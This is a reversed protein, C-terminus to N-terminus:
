TEKTIAAEYIKAMYEIKYREQNIQNPAADRIEEQPFYKKHPLSLAHNKGDLVLDCDYVTIADLALKANEFAVGKDYEEDWKLGRKFLATPVAAWNAEFHNPDNTTLIFKGQDFWDKYLQTGRVDHWDIEQPKDKYPEEFITYHGEIDFVKDVTPDKTISTLGTFLKNDGNAEYLKAFRFLGDADIWLYDQLSVLLECNFDVAYEMAMNYARALNRIEGKSSIIPPPKMNVIRVDNRDAVLEWWMNRELQDCTILMFDRYTQRLLTAETVDIGGCRCSPIFVATM